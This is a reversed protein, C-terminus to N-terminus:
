FIVEFYYKSLCVYNEFFMVFIKLFFFKGFYRKFFIKRDKEIKFYKFKLMYFSNRYCDIIMKNNKCFIFVKGYYNDFIIFYKFYM